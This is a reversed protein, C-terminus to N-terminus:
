LVKYFLFNSNLSSHWCSIKYRFLRNTGLRPDRKHLNELSRNLEDDFKLTEITFPIANTRDDDHESNFFLGFKKLERMGQSLLLTNLAQDNLSIRISLCRGFEDAKLSGFKLSRSYDMNEEIDLLIMQLTTLFGLSPLSTLKPPRKLTLVLSYKDQDASLDSCCLDIFGEVDKFRFEARDNGTQLLIKRSPLEITVQVDNTHTLKYEELFQPKLTEAVKLFSMMEDTGDNVTRLWNELM